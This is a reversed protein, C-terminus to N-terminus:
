EIGFEKRLDDILVKKGKGKEADKVAELLRQANKPSRLLHATELLSSLEKESILAVSDGVRRDIFYVENNESVKNLIEALNERAKSYTYREAM